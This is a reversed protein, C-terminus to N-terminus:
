EDATPFVNDKFVKGAAFVPVKTAPIDIKEGTRPNHGSRAQREKKEFSGFGTLNVKDGSAVSAVITELIADLITNAQKQSVQAKKGIAAILEMKNM